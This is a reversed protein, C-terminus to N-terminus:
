SKACVTCVTNHGRDCVFGEGSHFIEIRYRADRNCVWSSCVECLGTSWHGNQKVMWWDMRENMWGTHFSEINWSSSVARYYVNSHGKPGGETRSRLLGGCDRWMFLWHSVCQWYPMWWGSADPVGRCRCGFCSPQTMCWMICRKISVFCNGTVVALSQCSTRLFYSIRTYEKRVNNEMLLGCCKSAVTGIQCQTKTHPLMHFHNLWFAASCSTAHLWIM